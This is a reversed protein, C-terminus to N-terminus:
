RSFSVVQGSVHSGVYESWAQMLEKRKDFLDGRRYAAETADGITHALAMEAVINQIQTEEAIWERFASRMGHVTYNPNYTKLPKSIGTSSLPVKKQISPFIYDTDIYRPVQKLIDIAADSLPVRHERGAKMREAPIIWVKEKLDVEPWVADRVEGSRTGTLILFELARAAMGKGKQLHAVFAPLEKYPMAAHHINGKLKKLKAPSAYIQNLHGSWRAPNDGSRHGSVTAWALVAELRMRVRSATETKVKWIPDLVAKIHQLEIEDVNLNGVVPFAYTKLTNIWQASHKINKFEASNKQHCKIAADKFSLKRMNSAEMEAKLAKKEAVPDISQSIKERADRAKNRADALPVSPFGGLGLERRKKGIMCRLIWSRAGSKSVALYLGSVGGVAFMGPSSIRKVELASLEKAAKAM